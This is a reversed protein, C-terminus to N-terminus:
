PEAPSPTQIDRHKRHEAGALRTTPRNVSPSELPALAQRARGRTGGCPWLRAGWPPAAPLVPIRHPIDGPDVAGSARGTKKQRNYESIGAADLVERTM